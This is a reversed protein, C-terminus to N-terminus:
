YLDEVMLKEEEIAGVRYFTISTSKTSFISSSGLFFLFLRVPVFLNRFLVTGCLISSRRVSLNITPHQIKEDIESLELCDARNSTLPRNISAAHYGWSQAVRRM